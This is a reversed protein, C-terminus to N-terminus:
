SDNNRKKIKQKNTKNKNEVKNEFEFNIYYCFFYM